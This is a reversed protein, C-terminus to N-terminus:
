ATEYEHWLTKDAEPYLVCTVKYVTVDSESDKVDEVKDVEASLAWKRKVNTGDRLELGVPFKYGAKPVKITSHKVGTTTTQTSGPNVLGFVAANDELCVFTISREHKSKTKRVLVGGWAFHSNSDESRSETVGEDGDLLGVATWGSGWATTLDVPGTTVTNDGVYVDADTWLEANATNGM